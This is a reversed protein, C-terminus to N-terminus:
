RPSSARSRDPTERIGLMINGPTVKAWHQETNKEEGDNGSRGLSLLFTHLLCIIFVLVICFSLWIDLFTFYSVRAMSSSATSIFTSLVLLSTLSVMIRDTFDDEQFYFSGYSVIVLLLTPMFISISYYGYLHGFQTIFVVESKGGKTRSKEIGLTMNRVYYELLRERFVPNTTLNGSALLSGPGAKVVIFLKCTQSDFPFKYLNPDCTATVVMRLILELTVSSGLFM